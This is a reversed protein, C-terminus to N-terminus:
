YKREDSYQKEIDEKEKWNEKQWFDSPYIM